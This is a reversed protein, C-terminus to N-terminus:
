RLADWTCKVAGLDSCEVARAVWEHAEGVPVATERFAAGRFEEWRGRLDVDEAEQDQDQEQVRGGVPRDRSTPIIQRWPFELLMDKRMREDKSRTPSDAKEAMKGRQEALRASGRRQRKGRRKLFVVLADRLYITLVIQVAENRNHIVL